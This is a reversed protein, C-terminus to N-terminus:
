KYNFEEKMMQYIKNREEKTFIDKTIDILCATTSGNKLNQQYKDVLNFHIGITNSDIRASFNELKPM